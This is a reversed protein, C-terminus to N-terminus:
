NSESRSGMRSPNWANTVKRQPKASDIKSRFSLVVPEMFPKKPTKQPVKKKSSKAPKIVKKKKM